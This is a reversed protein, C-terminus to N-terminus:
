KENEVHEELIRLTEQYNIFWGLTQVVRILIDSSLERFHPSQDGIRSITRVSALCVLHPIYLNFARVFEALMRNVEDKLGRQNGIDLDNVLSFRLDKLIALLGQIGIKNCSLDLATVKNNENMLATSLSRAGEVGINNNYLNLATVKNNKNKLATSLSRAGDDRIMNVSLNLSTVKNNKNMLATSLPKIIENRITSYSLTLSALKNNENMLATSLSKVRDHDIRNWSLDLSIVKNNENMLAISLARVEDDSINKNRLKLAEVEGRRIEELKENFDADM